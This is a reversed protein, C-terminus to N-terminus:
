WSLWLWRGVLVKRVESHIVVKAGMTVEAVFHTGFQRIFSNYVAPEYAESPLDNVANEFTESVKFFSKRLSSM